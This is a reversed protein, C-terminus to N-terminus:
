NGELETFLKDVRRLGIESGTLLYNDYATAGGADLSNWVGYPHRWHLSDLRIEAKAGIARTSQGREWWDWLQELIPNLCEKCFRDIATPEVESKWRMFYYSNEDRIIGRLRNYFSEKSEGSPNSKTPEHRKISGKGGSLPRRVVNYRVGRVPSIFRSVPFDALQLLLRMALLYLMTQLEFGSELQSKMVEPKIDGKTKNEQLYVGRDKGKGILDVSDFKGRLRVIRGSPLTYPVSFVYEQMIPERHKEDPHKKWYDVYEPFQAKCVNFWHDIDKVRHRYRVGLGRAYVILKDFKDFMSDALKEEKGRKALEEECYHWMQGYEIKHDFDDSPALGEIAYLRFRERCNLFRSLLSQTIGDIEPGRWLPESRKKLKNAARKLEKGLLSM